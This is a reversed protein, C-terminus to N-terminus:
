SYTLSACDNAIHAFDGNGGAWTVRGTTTSIRKIRWVAATLAAGPEAYCHYETNATSTTDKYYSLPVELNGVRAATVLNVNWNGSQTVAFPAALRTVISQVGTLVSAIAAFTASLWGLIGTAGAPANVGTANTGQAGAIIALQGGNEKAANPPLPLEEVVVSAPLNLDGELRQFEVVLTISPLQAQAITISQVSNLPWEANPNNPLYLPGDNVLAMFQYTSNFQTNALYRKIKERDFVWNGGLSHYSVTLHGDLGQNYINIAGWCKEQATNGFGVLEFKFDYDVGLVLAVAPANDPIRPTYSLAFDNGFFPGHELYLCGFTALSAPSVQIQEGNVHNASALRTTDLQLSM